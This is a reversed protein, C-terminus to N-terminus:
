LFVLVQLAESIIQAHNQLKEEWAQVLASSTLVELVSPPGASSPYESDMAMAPNEAEDEIDRVSENEAWTKSAMLFLTLNNMCNQLIDLSNRYLAIKFPTQPGAAIRSKPDAETVLSRARAMCADAENLAKQLAELDNGLVAQLGSKRKEGGGQPTYGLFIRDLLMGLQGIAAAEPGERKLLSDVLLQVALAMTIQGLECYRNNFLDTNLGTSCTTLLPYVGFGAILCGVLSWTQSTFYMYMFVWVYLWIALFAAASRMKSGCDFISLGSLILLPLVKGLLVGLLRHLNNTFATSQYQSILLALTAPMTPDYSKFVYGNMRIALFFVITIGVFNRTAFALHDPSFIKAPAWSNCLGEWGGKVLLLVNDGRWCRWKTDEENWEIVRQALDAAKRATFSVSFVMITDDALDDSPKPCYNKYDFVLKRQLKRIHDKSQLIASKMVANIQKEYTASLCLETLATAEQVMAQLQPHLPRVFEEHKGTFDENLVCSKVAPLIDVIDAINSQFQMMIQRRPEFRALLASEWWAAKLNAAVNLNMQSIADIKAELHFRKATRSTGCIYEVAEEWIKSVTGMTSIMDQFAKRSNFLPCPVFTALAAFFCGLVTTVLVVFWYETVCVMSGFVLESEPCLTRGDNPDIFDMMFYFHWSMGFKITNIQSNSMMFLFLVGLTDLWGIWAAYGPSEYVLDGERCEEAAAEAATCEHAKAGYPFVLSMFFVNLCACTTGVFGQWCLQLTTGTGGFVSFVVMQVVNPWTAAWVEPLVGCWLGVRNEHWPGMTDNWKRLDPEQTLSTLTMMRGYMNPECFFDRKAESQCSGGIFHQWNYTLRTDIIAQNNFLECAGGFINGNTMDKWSWFTCNRHAECMHLCIAGYDLIPNETYNLPMAYVAKNGSLTPFYNGQANGIWFRKFNGFYRRGPRYGCVKGYPSTGLM